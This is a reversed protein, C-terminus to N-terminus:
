DESQGAGGAGGNWWRGNLHVKFRREEGNGGEARDGGEGRMLPAEEGVVTEESGEIREKARGMKWWLLWFLLGWAIGLPLLQSIQFTKTIGYM